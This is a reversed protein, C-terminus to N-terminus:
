DSVEPQRNDKDGYVITRHPFPIEIGEKDFAYKIAYVPNKTESLKLIEFGQHSLTEGIKPFMATAETGGSYCTINEVGFFHAMTQAWIQSLHSRRSNHTCIFNLKPQQVSSLYDVIEDLIAIRNEDVQEKRVKDLYSALSQNM